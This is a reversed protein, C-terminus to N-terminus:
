QTKSRVTSPQPGTLTENMNTALSIKIWQDNFNNKKNRPQLDDIACSQHLPHRLAYIVIVIVLMEIVTVQLQVM